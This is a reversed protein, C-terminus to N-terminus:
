KIKNITFCDTSSHSLVALYFRNNQMSFTSKIMWKFNNSYGSLVNTYYITCGVQMLFAIGFM